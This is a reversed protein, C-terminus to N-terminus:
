KLIFGLPTAGLNRICEMTRDIEDTRSVKEEELLVVYGCAATLLMATDNGQLSKASLISVDYRSHLFDVIKRAQEAANKQPEDKGSLLLSTPGDPESIKNPLSFIDQNGVDIQAAKLKLAGFAHLLEAAVESNDVKPSSSVLVFAISSSSAKSAIEVAIKQYVDRNM